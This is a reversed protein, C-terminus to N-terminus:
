CGDTCTSREFDVPVIAFNSSGETFVSKLGTGGVVFAVADCTAFSMGQIKMSEQMTAPLYSEKRLMFQKTVTGDAVLTFTQEGTEIEIEEYLSFRYDSLLSM